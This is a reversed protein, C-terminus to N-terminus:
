RVLCSIFDKRPRRLLNVLSKHYTAIVLDKLVLFLFIDKVATTGDTIERGVQPMEAL